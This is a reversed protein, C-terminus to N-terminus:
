WGDQLATTKASAREFDRFVAVGASVAVILILLGVLLTAGCGARRKSDEGRGGRLTEAECSVHAADCDHAPAGWRVSLLACRCGDERQCLPGSLERRVEAASYTKGNRAICLPCSDPAALWQIGDVSAREMDAVNRLLSKRHSKMAQGKESADSKAM